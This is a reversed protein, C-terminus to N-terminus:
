WIIQDILVYIKQWAFLLLENFILILEWRLLYFVHLDASELSFDFWGGFGGGKEGREKLIPNENQRETKTHWRVHM